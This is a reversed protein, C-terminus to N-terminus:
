KPLKYFFDKDTSAFYACTFGNYSNSSTKNCLEEPTNTDSYWPAGGAQTGKAGLPLLKGDDMVQFIFFDHGYRNPRKNIGNIDVGILIKNYDSHHNITILMSDSIIFQGDDFWIGFSKQGTYSKYNSLYNENEDTYTSCGNAGCDKASIFYKNFTKAFEHSEIDYNEYNAIYGQEANMRNLAQTLVTYAKKYQSELEKGKTNNVLAPLTLAAVVGILGLTILVEALTFGKRIM